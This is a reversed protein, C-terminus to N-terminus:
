SSDLDVAFLEGGSAVVATHSAPSIEFLRIGVGPPFKIARVVNLTAADFVTIAGACAVVVFKGDSTFRVPGTRPGARAVYTAIHAKALQRHKDLDWLELWEDVSEGRTPNQPSETTVAVLQDSPSLDADLVKIGLEWNEDSPTQAAGCSLRVSAALLIALITLRAAELFAFYQEKSM